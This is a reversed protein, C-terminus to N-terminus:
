SLFSSLKTLTVRTMVTKDKKKKWINVVRTLPIQLGTVQLIRMRGETLVYIMMSFHKTQSKFDTLICPM